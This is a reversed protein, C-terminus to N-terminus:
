GITLTAFNATTVTLTSQVLAADVADAFFASLIVNGAATMHTHDVYYTNPAGMADAVEDFEPVLAADALHDAFTLYNSRILTNIAQRNEDWAATLGADGPYRERAIVTVAIVEFGAAQRALCYDRYAEYEPTGDTTGPNALDNTIEWAILINRENSASYLVDIQTAADAAMDGTTQGSQRFNYVTWDPHRTIVGTTLPAGLSNGDAIFLVAM